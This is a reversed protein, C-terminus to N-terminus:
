VAEWGILYAQQGTWDVKVPIDVTVNIGIERLQQAAAQAMDLRVQDGAGVSIVFGIEEGNREYFGDKGMVCGTAELLEKAKAPDYDYHEVNENNYVNRQLPGYAPMGQGLVVADHFPRVTLEM